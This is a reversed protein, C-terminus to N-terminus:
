EATLVWAIIFMIAGAGLLLGGIILGLQEVDSM